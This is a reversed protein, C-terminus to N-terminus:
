GAVAFLGSTLNFDYQDAGGRLLGRVQEGVERRFEAKREESMGNEYHLIRSQSLLLGTLEEPTMKLVMPVKSDRLVVFRRDTRFCRTIAEFDGRPRQFPAKWRLNFERRIWENLEPCSQSKPFQYEYVLIVGFPRLVRLFEERTRFPDMWHFASGVTVADVSATGLSTEEGGGVAFRVGAAVLEPMARAKDLMAPDPDTATVRMPIGSRLLSVTSHGTGCGVDAVEYPSRLGRLELAPGLDAFLQAPYFPRYRRYFEPDFKSM